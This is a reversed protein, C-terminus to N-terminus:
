AQSKVRATERTPVPNVNVATLCHTFKFFANKDLLSTYKTQYDLLLEFTINM